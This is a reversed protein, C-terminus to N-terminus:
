KEDAEEACTGSTGSTASSASSSSTKPCFGCTAKCNARVHAVKKPGPMTCYEKPCGISTPRDKCTPQASVQSSQQQNNAAVQQQRCFGCTSKCYARVHAQKKPGPMKCMEKPCNASTDRCTNQTVPKQTTVIQAVTVPAPAQTTPAETVIQPPQTAVPNNVAVPETPMVPKPIIPAAAAETSFVAPTTCTNCLNPCRERTISRECYTMSSILKCSPDDTCTSQPSATTTTEEKNENVPDDSCQNCSVRCIKQIGTM